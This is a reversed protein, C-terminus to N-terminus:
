DNLLAEATDEDTILINLYHGRLVATIAAVKSPGAAVGIVNQLAAITTLSPSIVRRELPSELEKGDADLFHSLIDGIAGNRKLFLFDGSSLAGSRLITADELLAGIGIVTMVSLPILQEIERVSQETNIAAAMEESSAILPAPILYLKSNFFGSSANPLYYSVGGTLSVCSITGESSRALHNLVRGATDGYGINIFADEPIRNSIYMSAARAVNDNIDNKDLPAPVLFCDQLDYKTMLNQELEMRREDGSRIRFQVMGSVRAKDLLRMVRMRTLGLRESIQNQTLNGYYYYWAARAMLAEEYNLHLSQQEQAM